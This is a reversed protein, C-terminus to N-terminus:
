TLSSLKLLLLILPVRVGNGKPLNKYCVPTELFNLIIPLLYALKKGSHEKDIGVVNRLRLIAPWAHAQIPTPRVIMERTQNNRLAARLEMPVNLDDIISFCKPANEGHILVDDFDLPIGTSKRPSGSRNEEVTMSPEGRLLRMLQTSDISPRFNNDDEEDKIQQKLCGQKFIKARPNSRMRAARVNPSKSEVESDTTSSDTAGNQLSRAITRSKVDPIKKHITKNEVHENSAETKSRPIVITDARKWVGKPMTNAGGTEGLSADVLKPPGEEGFLKTILQDSEDKRRQVSMPGNLCSEDDSVNVGDETGAPMIVDFSDDSLVPPLGIEKRLDDGMSQMTLNFLRKERARAAVIESQDRESLSPSPKIGEDVPESSDSVISGEEKSSNLDKGSFHLFIIVTNPLYQAKTYCPFDSVRCIHNPPVTVESFGSYM